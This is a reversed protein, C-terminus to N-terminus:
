MCKWHLCALYSNGLWDILWDILWFLWDSCDFLWDILRSIRRDICFVRNSFYCERGRVFWLDRGFGDPSSTRWWNIKNEQRRGRCVGLSDQHNRGHDIFAGEQEIPSRRSAHLIPRYANVSNIELLYAASFHLIQPAYINSFHDPFYMKFQM